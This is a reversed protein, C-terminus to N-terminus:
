TLTLNKDKRYSFFNFILKKSDCFNQWSSSCLIHYVYPMSKDTPCNVSKTYLLHCKQFLTSCDLNSCICKSCNVRVWYFLITNWASSMSLSFNRSRTRYVQLSSIEEFVVLLINALWLLVEIFVDACWSNDILLLSWYIPLIMSQM